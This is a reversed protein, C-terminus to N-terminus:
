AVIRGCLQSGSAVGEGLSIICKNGDGWGLRWQEWIHLLQIQGHAVQVLLFQIQSPMFVLNTAWLTQKVVAFPFLYWWNVKCSVALTFASVVVYYHLKKYNLFCYSYSFCPGPGLIYGGSSSCNCTQALCRTAMIGVAVVGAGGIRAPWSLLTYVFCLGGMGLVAWLKM